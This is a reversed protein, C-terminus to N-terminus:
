GRACACGIEAALRANNRVLEINAILSRGETIREIESLLFPTLDKGFIKKNDASQVAAQIFQDMENFDISHEEPIPNAILVGGQLNMNWKTKLFQAIERPSDVRYELDIGSNRSYFAPFEDTQYGLVPVGLTELQELTKPLDLIAKAGGSVVAVNTKALEQLDASIDMTLEAGRHVGGIGGTAFIRIGAMDAAIMTAAVTTAGDLKNMVLHPLDRRSAKAISTGGRALHELEHASLGVKIKGKIIAITAPVAGTSRIENELLNAVELNQPFPMGHSIITSELAVLPKRQNLADQVEQSIELYQQMSM